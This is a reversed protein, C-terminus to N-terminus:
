GFSVKPAYGFGSQSPTRFNNSDQRAVVLTVLRGAFDALDETVATQQPSAMAEEFDTKNSFAMETMMFVEAMDGDLASAIHHVSVNLLGPTKLLLPMHVERYHRLFADPDDPQRFLAILKYM